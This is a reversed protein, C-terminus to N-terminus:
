ALTFDKNKTTILNSPLKINESFQCDSQGLRELILHEMKKFEEINLDIEGFIKAADHELKQPTKKLTERASVLAITKPM